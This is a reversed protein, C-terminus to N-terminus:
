DWIDSRDREAKPTWVAILVARRNDPQASLSQRKSRMTLGVTSTHMSSRGAEVKARLYDDHKRARRRQEIYGRMLARMVQSAPRGERSAEDMSADRLEPQSEHHFRSERSVPASKNWPPVSRTCVVRADKERCLGGARAMLGRLGRAWRRPLRSYLRHFVSTTSGHDSRQPLSVRRTLM